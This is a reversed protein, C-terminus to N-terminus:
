LRAGLENSGFLGQVSSQACLLVMGVPKGNGGELDLAGGSLEVTTKLRELERPRTRSATLSARKLSAVSPLGDTANWMSRARIESGM